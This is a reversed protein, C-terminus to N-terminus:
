AAIPLNAMYEAKLEASITTQEEKSMNKWAEQARKMYDTTKLGTEETRFENMKKGIFLNYGSPGNKKRTKKEETAEGEVPKTKKTYKRKPKVEGDAEPKAEVEGDVVKPKRTYKRKPKEQQPEPKAVEEGETDSKPVEVVETKTKKTYKRKPKEEKKEVEVETESESNNQLLPQEPELQKNEPARMWIKDNNKVGVIWNKNDRGVMQTGVSEADACYGMGLPSMEKGTYSYKENNKCAMKQAPAM